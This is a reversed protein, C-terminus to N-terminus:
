TNNTIDDTSFIVDYSKNLYAKIKLRGLTVLKASMMLNVVM